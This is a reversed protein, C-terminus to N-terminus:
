IDDTQNHAESEQGSSRDASDQQSNALKNNTNDTDMDPQESKDGVNVNDKKLLIDQNETM